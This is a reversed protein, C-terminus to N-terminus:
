GLGPGSKNTDMDKREINENPFEEKDSESSGTKGEPKRQNTGHGANTGEENFASGGSKYREPNPEQKGAREQDNRDDWNQNSEQHSGTTKNKDEAM